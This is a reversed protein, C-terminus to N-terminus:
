NCRYKMVIDNINTKHKRRFLGLKQLIPHLQRLTIDIGYYVLLFLLIENYSFGAHFYHSVIEKRDSSQLVTLDSM